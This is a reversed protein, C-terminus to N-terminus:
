NLWLIVGDGEHVAIQFFCFLLKYTYFAWSFLKLEEYHGTNKAFPTGDEVVHRLLADLPSLVDYQKGLYFYNLDKPFDESPQRIFALIDQKNRRTKFKELLDHPVRRYHAEIGM